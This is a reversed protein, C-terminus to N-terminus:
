LRPEGVNDVTVPLARPAPLELPASSEGDSDWRLVANQDPDYM